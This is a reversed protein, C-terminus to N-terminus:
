PLPHPHLPHPLKTMADFQARLFEGYGMGAHEPKRGHGTISYAVDQRIGLDRFWTTIRHRWSHHPKIRPDTIRLTQRIWRGNKDIITNSRRGDQNPKVYAFLPGRPQANLYDLFGEDIIPQPRLCDSSEASSRRSRCSSSASRSPTCTTSQNSCSRYSWELKEVHERECAGDIGGRLQDDDAREGSLGRECAQALQRGTLELREPGRAQRRCGRRQFRSGAGPGGELLGLRCRDGFPRHTLGRTKRKAGASRRSSSSSGVGASPSERVSRDTSCAIALPARVAGAAKMAACRSSSAGNRPSM